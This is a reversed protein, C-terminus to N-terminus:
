VKCEGKATRTSTGKVGGLDGDGRQQYSKKNKTKKYFSSPTVGFGKGRV